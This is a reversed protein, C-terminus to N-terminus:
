VNFYRFTKKRGDGSMIRKIERRRVLKMLPGSIATLPYMWGHAQLEDRIEAIARGSDFFGEDRLKLIRDTTSAPSSSPSRTPRPSERVDAPSDAHETKAPGSRSNGEGLLHALIVKFADRRLEPDSVQAAASEAARITDLIKAM